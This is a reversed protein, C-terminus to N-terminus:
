YAFVADLVDKSFPTDAGAHLFFWDLGAAGTLKNPGSDAHVTVINLDSNGNLGGGARLHAVRIALAQGSRWERLIAALATKHADTSLDDYVATGGILVDGGPGASLQSSGGGGILLNGDSGGTLTNKVGGGILINGGSNGVLSNIGKGGHVNQIHGVTTVDPAVGTSLDVTVNSTAPFLSYDLWDGGGGGDITLIHAGPQLQFTDIGSGGLLTGVKQFNFPGPVGSVTLQGTYDSVLGWDNTAGNPGALTTTTPGNGVLGNIGLFSVGIGPASGASAGTLSVKVPLGGQDQYDLRNVIGGGGNIIGRVGAAPGVFRFLDNSPGGLLNEIRLFAINGDLRGGDLQQIAWTNNLNPGVLTNVGGGGDLELGLDLPVAAQIVFSDNFRGASVAEIGRGVFTIPAAGQRNVTQAAVTYKRASSSGHDNLNVENSTGRGANINLPGQIPDLTGTGDGASGVNVVDTGFGGVGTATLALNLVVPAARGDLRSNAGPTSVVNYVNAGQGGDITLSALQTGTYNITAALGTIRATSITVDPHDTTDAENDVTLATVRSTNIITVTGKIGQVQGADGITVTDNGGDRVTVPVGAATDEVNVTTTGGTRTHVDIGTLAGPEFTATYGNLDVTVGGQPSLGVTIAGHLSTFQDGEVFLTGNTVTFNQLNNGDPVVYNGHNPDHPNPDPLWYSQVLTGTQPERYTYNEAENDCIEVEPAGTWLAGHVVNYTFDFPDPDSAAEVVEHSATVTTADLSGTAGVWAFPGKDLDPFSGLSEYSHYGSIGPGQDSIIGSPTVVVYLPTENPIDDEDPLGLHDIASNVVNAVDDQSFGSAPESTDVVWGVVSANGMGVRYQGLASMYPGPLVSSMAQGIAVAAPNPNGNGDGWEAGGWFILYVPTKLNLVSNFIADRVTEGGFKPTFVISPQCRDELQDVAPRSPPRVARATPLRSPRQSPARLFLRDFLRNPM